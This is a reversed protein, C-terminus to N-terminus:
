FADSRWYVWDQPPFLGELLELAGDPLPPLGGNTVALPDRLRAYADETGFLLSLFVSESLAYPDDRSPPVITVRGDAISLTAGGRLPGIRLRLPEAVPLKRLRTALLPALEKLL